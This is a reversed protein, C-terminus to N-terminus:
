SVKTQNLKHPHNPLEVTPVDNHDLNGVCNQLRVVLQASYQLRASLEAYDGVEVRHLGTGLDLAVTQGRRTQPCFNFTLGRRVM